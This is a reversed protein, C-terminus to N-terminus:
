RELQDVLVAAANFFLVDRDIHRATAMGFLRCLDPIM